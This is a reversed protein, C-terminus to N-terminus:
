LSMTPGGPGGPGGPIGPLAHDLMLTSSREEYKCLLVSSLLLSPRLAAAQSLADGTGELAAMSFQILTDNGLPAHALLDRPGQVSLWM